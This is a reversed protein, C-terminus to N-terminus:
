LKNKFNEFVMNRDPGIRNIDFMEPKLTVFGEELCFRFIKLSIKKVKFFYRCAVDEDTENGVQHSAHSILFAGLIFQKFSTSLM